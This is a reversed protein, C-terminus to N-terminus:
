LEYIQWSKNKKNKTQYQINSLTDVGQRFASKQSSYIDILMGHNDYHAVRQRKKGGKNNFSLCTAMKVQEAFNNMISELRALQKRLVRNESELELCTQCMAKLQLEYLEKEKQEM